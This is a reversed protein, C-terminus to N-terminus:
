ELYKGSCLFCIRCCIKRPDLGTLIGEVISKPDVRWRMKINRKLMQEPQTADLRGEITVRPPEPKSCGEWQLCAGAAVAPLCIGYDALSSIGDCNQTADVEVPIKSNGALRLIDKFPIHIGVRQMFGAADEASRPLCKEYENWENVIDPHCATSKIINIIDYM